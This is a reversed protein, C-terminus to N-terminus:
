DRVTNKLAINPVKLFSENVMERTAVMKHGEFARLHSLTAANRM